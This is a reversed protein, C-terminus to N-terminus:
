FAVKNNKKISYEDIPPELAVNLDPLLTQENTGPKSSVKKNHIQISTNPSTNRMELRTQMVEGQRHLFYVEYQLKGILTMHQALTDLTFSLNSSHSNVRLYVRHTTTFNDDVMEDEM